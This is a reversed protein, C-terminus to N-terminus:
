RVESIMERVRHIYTHQEMTKKRGNSAIQERIDDRQLYFNLKDLMEEKSSYAAYDEGEVFCDAFDAQYNSILFGGAGLVDFARLPVGTHISRLTINLNIKSNRYVFPAYDYYDVPGHNCVGPLSFNEDKTYLDMGYKEGILNVFDYRERATIERNIVYEGFFYERKAVSDSDPKMPLDVYMADMLKEDLMSEVFNYGYVMSQAAIVGELYGRVKDSISTLRRYFTHEENYLSGVFSIDTKNYWKSKAFLALRNKDSLMANLRISNAALPLYHVTKIGNRNFEEYVSKDFVFIYNTDLIVSCSYILVFPSDYIWSIYPVGAKNSSYAIPPYYNFSFIVAPNIEYIEKLLRRELEEEHYIDLSSYPVSVVEIDLAEFAAKIDENGYSKWEFFLLKM